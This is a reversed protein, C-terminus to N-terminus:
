FTVSRQSPSVCISVLHDNELLLQIMIMMIMGDYDDYDDYDYDDWWVNDLGM